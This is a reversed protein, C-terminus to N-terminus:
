HGSMSSGATGSADYKASPSNIMEISKIDSSSMSKLLEAIERSSLYTQKGDILVAAGAKGNLSINNDTGVTVGPARGLLELANSGQANISKSVNFVINGGEMEIVKQNGTVNVEKLLKAKPMLRLKGFEKHQLGKELPALKLILVDYGISSLKLAYAKNGQMSHSFQFSGQENAIAGNVQVEDALLSITAFPVAIGEPNVISGSLLTKTIGEEEKKLLKKSGIVIMEKSLVQYFLQKSSLVSDLVKAVPSHSVNVSVLMTDTIVEDSYVFTYGCQTQVQKFLQTIPSRNLKLTLKQDQGYLLGYAFVLLLLLVARKM